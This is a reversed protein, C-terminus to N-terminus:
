MAFNSDLTSGFGDFGFLTLYQDSYGLLSPELDAFLNLDLPAIDPATNSAAALYPMGGAPNPAVSQSLNQGLPALSSQQQDLISDISGVSTTKYVAGQLREVLRLANMALTSGDAMFRLAEIGRTIPLLQHYPSRLIANLLLVIIASSCTHFDTFSFKALLNRSYLQSIWDIIITASEACREALKQSRLDMEDCEPSRSDAAVPHLQKRVLRLIVGRGINVWIMNYM